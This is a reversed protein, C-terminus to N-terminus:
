FTLTGNETQILQLIQEERGTQANVYVIYEEDNFTGKFEYCLAENEGKPILALRETEITMDHNAVDRAQEIDISVQPIDRDHHNLYYAGADLGVIEGDDLAVKVKLLDPYITIDDETYAFNYLVVGDYQLHYNPEMNEFGKSELYELAKEQGQEVTLNKASVGRPNQMNIVNGGQRTVGIFKSGNGNGLEFTYTPIRMEQFDEGIEFEFIEDFVEEGMFEQAIQRAEDIEVQGEGLGLPERNIMQDAFPGDYILEPTKAIEQDHNVLSTVLTHQNLGEEDLGAMGVIFNDEMISNALATLEGNFEQTNLQIGALTDRQENTIEEGELIRQILFYSYDSAQSLFKETSETEVHSIPFQGLKDRASDAETIIQSLLLVRREDTNSLLAKSLSVEVDDVHSNVDYFLRHYHNELATEYDRRLDYENYGWILSALLLVSLTIPAIYNRNKM